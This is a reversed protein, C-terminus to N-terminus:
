RWKEIPIPVHPLELWTWNLLSRIVDCVIDIRHEDRLTNQTTKVNWCMVAIRWYNNNMCSFQIHYNVRARADRCIFPHSISVCYVGSIVAPINKKEGRKERQWKTIIVDARAGWTMNVCLENWDTTPKLKWDCSCRFHTHSIHTHVMSRKTM